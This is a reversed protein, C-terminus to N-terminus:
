HFERIGNNTYCDLRLGFCTLFLHTDSKLLKCFLIRGKLAIGIFLGTLGDDGTHTLKM